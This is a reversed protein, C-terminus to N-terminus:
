EPKPMKKFPLFTVDSIKETVSALTHGPGIMPHQGDCDRKVEIKNKPDAAM